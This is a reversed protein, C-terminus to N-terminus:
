EGLGWGLIAAADQGVRWWRGSDSPIMSAMSNDCLAKAMVCLAYVAGAEAKLLYSLLRRNSSPRAM